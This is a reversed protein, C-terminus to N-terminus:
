FKPFNKNKCPKKNKLMPEIWDKAIQNVKFASKEALDHELLKKAEETAHRMADIINLWGNMYELGRNAFIYQKKVFDGGGYGGGREVFSVTGNDYDIKLTVKVGKWEVTLIELHKKM